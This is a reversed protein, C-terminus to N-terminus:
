LPSGLQQMAKKISEKVHTKRKGQRQTKHFETGVEALGHRKMMERKQSRSSIEKDDVAINRFPSIDKMIQPSSLHSRMRCAEVISKVKREYQEKPVLNGTDPDQVWAGRVMEM